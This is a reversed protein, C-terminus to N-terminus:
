SVLILTLCYNSHDYYNKFTNMLFIEYSACHQGRLVLAFSIKKACTKTKRAPNLEKATPPAALKKNHTIKEVCLLFYVAFTSFSAPSLFRSLFNLPSIKNQKEMKLFHTPAFILDKPRSAHRGNQHGSILKM